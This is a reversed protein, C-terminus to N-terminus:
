KAAVRRSLREVSSQAEQTVRAEPAGGAVTKLVELAEPTGMLELSEISRITRLKEGASVTGGLKNLLGEIRKAVELPPKADLAKKLAPQALEQMKELEVEAKQRAAFQNSDLDKILKDVREADVPAMPKLKDKFLPVAQKPSRALINIAAWGKKADDGALDNWLSALEEATLDKEKPADAATARPALALGTVLLLGAFLLSRYRM